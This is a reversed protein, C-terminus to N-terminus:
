GARGVRWVKGEKSKSRGKASLFMEEKSMNRQTHKKQEFKRRQIATHYRYFVLINFFLETSLAKELM